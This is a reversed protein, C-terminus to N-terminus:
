ACQDRESGRISLDTLLKTTVAAAESAEDIREHNAETSDLYAHDIESTQVNHLIEDHLHHSTTDAAILDCERQAMAIYASPSSVESDCETLPTEDKQLKAPHVLTPYPDCILTDREQESMYSDLLTQRITM